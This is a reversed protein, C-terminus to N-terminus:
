LVRPKSTSIPNPSRGSGLSIRTYGRERVFRSVETYKRTDMVVWVGKHDTDRHHLLDIVWTENLANPAETGSLWLLIVATNFHLYSKVDEIKDFYIDHLDSVTLLTATPLGCKLLARAFLYKVEGTRLGAGEWIWITNASEPIAVSRLTDVRPPVENLIDRLYGQVDRVWLCSCPVEVGDRIVRRTNHCLPCVPDLRQRPHSGSVPLNTGPNPLSRKKGM